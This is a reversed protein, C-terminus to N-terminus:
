SLDIYIFRQEKRGETRGCIKFYYRPFLQHKCLLSLFCSPFDSSFELSSSSSSFSFYSSTSSYCSSSSSLSPSFSTSSYSFLLSPLSQLMFAIYFLYIQILLARHKDTRKHTLSCFQAWQLHQFKPGYPGSIRTRVLGSLTQGVALYKTLTM